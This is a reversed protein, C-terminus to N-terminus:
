LSLATKNVKFKLKRTVDLINNNRTIYSENIKVYLPTEGSSGTVNLLADPIKIVQGVTDLIKM